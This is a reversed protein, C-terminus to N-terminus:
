PEPEPVPEPVPQAAPAVPEPVPQAAPAVSEPVPQAAREPAPAAPSAEASTPPGLEAKSEQSSLAEQSSHPEQERESEGTADPQREREPQREPESEREGEAQPAAGRAAVVRQRAEATEAAEALVEEVEAQTMAALEATSRVWDPAAEAPSRQDPLGALPVTDRLSRVRYKPGLWLALLVFISLILVTYAIAPRPAPGVSHDAGTLFDYWVLVSQFFTLGTFIFILQNRNDDRRVQLRERHMNVLRRVSDLGQEAMTVETTVDWAALLGQYVSLRANGLNRAENRFVTSRLTVDRSLDLVQSYHEDVADPSGARIAHLRALSDSILKNAEDTIMWAQTAYILAEVVDERHSPEGRRLATYGDGVVAYAGGGLKCERGFELTADNEQHPEPNVMVRHFWLLRSPPLASAPPLTRSRAPVLETMLACWRAIVPNLQKTLGVEYTELEELSEVTIPIIVFGVSLASLYVRCPGIAPIQVTGDFLANEIGSAAISRHQDVLLGGDDVIRYEELVTGVARMFMRRWSDGGDGRLGASLQEHLAIRVPLNFTAVITVDV